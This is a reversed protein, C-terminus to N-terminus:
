HKFMQYLTTVAIFFFNLGFGIGMIFNVRAIVNDVKDVLAKHQIDYEARNINNKSADGLAGRWENSAHFRDDTFIMFRDLIEKTHGYRELSRNEREDLMRTLADLRARTANDCNDDCGEGM